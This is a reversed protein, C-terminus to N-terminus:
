LSIKYFYKSFKGFDNIDIDEAVIKCQCILYEYKLIFSSYDCNSQCTTYTGNYYDNRRDSLLVDTGDESTYPACIDTYFPDNINFLDYGYNELDEYLMILEEELDAPIYLYITDSQCLSLNLKEKTIPHYIEYQVNRESAVTLQEYKKIILSINQDINYYRKLTDECTGLDIM